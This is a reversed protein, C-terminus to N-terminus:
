PVVTWLRWVAADQPEVQLVYGGGSANYADEVHGACTMQCLQVFLLLAASMM